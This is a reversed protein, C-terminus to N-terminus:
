GDPAEPDVPRYAALEITEAVVVVVIGDPAKATLRAEIAAAQQATITGNVTAVLLDGPALTIVELRVLPVGTEVELPSRPPGQHSPYRRNATEDTM